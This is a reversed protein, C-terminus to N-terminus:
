KQHSCLLNLECVETGTNWMISWYPINENPLLVASFYKWIYYTVKSIISWHMLFRKSLISTGLCITGVTVLFFFKIIWSNKPFNEIFKLIGKYFDSLLVNGCHMIFTRKWDLFRSLLKNLNLSEVVKYRWEWM